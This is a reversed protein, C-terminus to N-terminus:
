FIVEMNITNEPDFIKSFEVTQGKNETDSIDENDQHDSFYMDNNLNHNIDYDAHENKIESGKIDQPSLTSM